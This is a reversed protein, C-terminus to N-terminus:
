RSLRQIDSETGVYVSSAQHPFLGTELVGPIAILLSDLQAADVIEPFIVDLIFNGNDTIVPGAKRGAQRVKPTGGLEKIRKLSLSLAPSMVEVPVPMKVGLRSVIKAQNVIVIFEQAAEALIKERM